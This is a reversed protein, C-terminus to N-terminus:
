FSKGLSYRERRVHRGNGRNAGKFTSTLSHCNPCLVTVNTPDNNSSDGDIHEIELPVNGTYQNIEGWGCKTCKYDSKRILHDRVPKSFQGTKGCPDFTGNYWSEVIDRNQKDQQCKNGCYKGTSNRSPRFDENCNACVKDLIKTGNRVVGKNNFTAACSRNCFKNKQKDTPLESDCAKCRKKM